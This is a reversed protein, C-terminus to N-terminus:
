KNTKMNPEPKSAFEWTETRQIKAGGGYVLKALVKSFIVETNGAALM